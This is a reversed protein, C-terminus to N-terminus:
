EEQGCDRLADEEIVAVISGLRRSLRVPQRVFDLVGLLKGSRSPRRRALVFRAGLTAIWEEIEVWHVCLSLLVDEISAILLGLYWIIVLLLLTAPQM